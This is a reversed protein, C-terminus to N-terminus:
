LSGVAPLVATTSTQPLLYYSAMTHEQGFLSVKVRDVFPFVFPALKLLKAQKSIAMPVLPPPEM